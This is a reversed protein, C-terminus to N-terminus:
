VPMPTYEFSPTATMGTSGVPTAVIEAALLRLEYMLGLATNIAEPEGNFAQHLTRLLTTYSYNFREVLNRAKSGPTYDVAKPDPYLNWVGNPDLPVSRGAFAYGTPAQADAVLLRAEVIERFRYYHAPRGGPAALPSSKTGEGQDVIVDIARCATGVDTIPFLLDRPFWTNEIVQPNSPHFIGDGLSRLKHKISAYFSGITPFSPQTQAAALAAAPPGVPIDIPLEPEEIRMFVDNVLGRSINRLRVILRDDISMPLKGPYLPVFGPKNIEPHGGIAILLNAAITLHLMEENAVSLIIQRVADNAGPKLSFAATLYPPITAHELEIAAQLVPYLDSANQAATVTQICQPRIRLVAAGGQL